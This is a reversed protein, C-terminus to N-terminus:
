RKFKEHETIDYPPPQVTVRRGDILLDQTLASKVIAALAIFGSGDGVSNVVEGAPKDEATKLTAGPRPAGEGTVIMGRRKVEGLHHLRAIVEQGVFCGKDFDVGGLVDLNLFQPIFLERTDAGVWPVARQIETKEWDGTIPSSSGAVHPRAAESINFVLAREDGEHLSAVDDNIAIAGGKLAPAIIESGRAAICLPPTTITVKARLVFRKLLAATTDAIDARMIFVFRQAPAGDPLRALLGCSIMRGQRSCYAARRWQGVPLTESNITLQGQLFHAADAGAFEVAALIPLQESNKTM